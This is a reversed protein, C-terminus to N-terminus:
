KGSRDEAAVLNSFARVLSFAIASREVLDNLRGCADAALVAILSVADVVPLSRLMSRIELFERPFEGSADLKLATDDDM